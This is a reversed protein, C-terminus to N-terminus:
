LILIFFPVGQKKKIRIKNQIFIIRDRRLRPLLSAPDRDRLLLSPRRGKTIRIKIIFIIRGGKGQALRWRLPDHLLLV